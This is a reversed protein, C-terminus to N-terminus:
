VGESGQTSERAGENPVMHEMWHIVTLMLKQIRGEEQCLIVHIETSCM